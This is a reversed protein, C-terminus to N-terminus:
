RNHQIERRSDKYGAPNESILRKSSQIKEYLDDRFNKIKRYVLYEPSAQAKIEADAKSKTKDRIEVMLRFYYSEFEAEIAGLRCLNGSLKTIWEVAQTPTVVDPPTSDMEDIIELIINIRDMAQSQAPNLDLMKM